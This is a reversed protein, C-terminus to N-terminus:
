NDDSDDNPPNDITEKAIEEATKSSPLIKAKDVPLQNGEPAGPARSRASSPREDPKKKQGYGLFRKIVDEPVMSMNGIGSPDDSSAALIRDEQPTIKQPTEAAKKRLATLASGALRDDVPVGLADYYYLSNGKKLPKSEIAKKKGKKNTETPRQYYGKFQSVTPSYPAEAQPKAPGGETDDTNDPQTKEPAPPAERAFSQPPMIPQPSFFTPDVKGGGQARAIRDKQIQQKDTAMKNAAVTKALVAQPNPPPFGPLTIGPSAQQPLPLPAPFGPLTLGAPGQPRPAPLPVPRPVVPARVPVPAGRPASSARPMGPRQTLDRPNVGMRQAAQVRQGGPNPAPRGGSGPVRAQNAKMKGKNQPPAFPGSM